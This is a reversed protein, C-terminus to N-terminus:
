KVRKWTLVTRAAVGTSATPNIWSIQDTTVSNIPRKQEQGVWNEFTSAEIRWVLTKEAENVTWTGYLGLSGSVIAKNEEPTASARNNSAIKPLTSTMNLIVFRGNADLVAIGRPNPGFPMSKAGEASTNEASVLAWMGVLQEKLTKQQAFSSEVMLFLAFSAAMCLGLVYRRHM